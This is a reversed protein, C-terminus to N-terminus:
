YNGHDSRGLNQKTLAQQKLLEAQKVKAAELKRQEVSKAAEQMIYLPGDVGTFNGDNFGQSNYTIPTTVEQGQGRARANKKALAEEAALSEKLQRSASNKAATLSSDYKNLVEDKQITSRMEKYNKIIKPLDGQEIDYNAMWPMRNKNIASTMFYNLETSTIDPIASVIQKIAPAADFGVLEEGGWKVIEDALNIKEGKGEQSMDYISRDWGQQRFYEDKAAETKQLTNNYQSKLNSANDKLLDTVGESVGYKTNWLPLVAAHLTNKETQSLDKNKNIGDFMQEPTDYQTFNESFWNEAKRYEAKDQEEQKAKRLKQVNLNSTANFNGVQADTLKALRADELANRGRTYDTNDNLIDNERDFNEQEKKRNYENIGNQEAGSFANAIRNGGAVQMAVYNGASQNPSTVAAAMLAQAARDRENRKQTALRQTTSVSETVKPEPLM